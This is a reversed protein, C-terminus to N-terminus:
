LDVVKYGVEALMSQIAAYSTGFASWAYPHLEIYIHSPSRGKDSLLERAGRLVEAEYGEVDIKLMDVRDDPFWEDITTIAVLVSDETDSSAVTSELQGGARFSIQGVES